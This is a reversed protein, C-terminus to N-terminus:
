NVFYKVFRSKSKNIISVYIYILSDIVSNQFSFIMLRIFIQPNKRLYRWSLNIADKSYKKKIIKELSTMFSFQSSYKRCISKRAREAEIIWIYRHSDNGSHRRYKILPEKLYALNYFLSVRMWYEWDCCAFPEFEGISDSCVKRMMVSPFVIPSGENFFLKEFHSSVTTLKNHDIRKDWHTGIIKGNEDIIYVDSCVLSIDPNEELFSVKQILNEPLMIDDDHFITIYECQALKLCLNINGFPGINEINRHYVIRPDKFSLIIEETNDVSANDCVILEFDQFTQNLVSEISEKLYNARNYTPICVSVKRTINMSFFKIQDISKKRSKQTQPVFQIFLMCYKHGNSPELM